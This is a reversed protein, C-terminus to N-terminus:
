RNMVTVLLSSEDAVNVTGDAITAMIPISAVGVAGVTPNGNLAYEITNATGVPAVRRIAIGTRTASLVPVNTMTFVGTALTIRQTVCEPVFAPDTVGVVANAAATVFWTTHAFVNGLGGVIAVIQPGSAGAMVVGAAMEPVRTLPALGGSVPGILYLGNEAATTQKVLLIPQTAAGLVNDNVNPDAAVPYAAINVNAHVVNRVKLFICDRKRGGRYRFAPDNTGVTGAATNAWSSVGYTGEAVEVRVSNEDMVFGTPLRESRTLAAVGAVVPGVKYPGNEALTTQGIALVVDDAVNLVNDNVGQNAAVTYASLSVNSLILNRATLVMPQTDAVLQTSEVAAQMISEMEVENAGRNLHANQAKVAAAAIVPNSSPWLLAGATRLGPVDDVTDDILSGPLSKVGALIITNILYYTAM